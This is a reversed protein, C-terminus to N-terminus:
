VENPIYCWALDDYLTLLCRFEKRYTDSAHPDLLAYM